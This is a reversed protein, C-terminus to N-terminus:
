YKRVPVVAYYRHQDLDIKQLNAKIQNIFAEEDSLPLDNPTQSPPGAEAQTSLKKDDEIKKNDSM